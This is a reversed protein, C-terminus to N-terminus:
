IASCEDYSVTSPNASTSLYFNFMNQTKDESEMVQRIDRLEDYTIEFDRNYDYRFWGDNFKHNNWSYDEYEDDRNHDWFHSEAAWFEIKHVRGDKNIDYKDILAQAEAQSLNPNNMM